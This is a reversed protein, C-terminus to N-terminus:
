ITSLLQRLLKRQWSIFDTTRKSDGFDSIGRIMLVPKGFNACAAFLGAGEMEAVETKGHLERMGLFKDIEFFSKVVLM